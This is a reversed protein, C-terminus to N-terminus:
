CLGKRTKTDTTCTLLARDGSAAATNLAQGHQFRSCFERVSKCVNRAVQKSLHKHLRVSDLYHIM